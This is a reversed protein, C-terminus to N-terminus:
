SGASRTGCTSSLVDEYRKALHSRDFHTEVYQRGNRGLQRCLGEDDCLREVARALEAANEPAICLGAEGADILSQAEGEVGLIIPVEMAMSEFIKSPIVTKFLDSRRLLVLSADTLSWLAPMRSKPLQDLMIVNALGMEDRLARLRAREAGDGVLLFVIDSRDVLAAAELVTELHHAMGHTGVYAAIFRGEVGLERALGADAAGGPYFSLDVGNKIVTIKAEDVGRDIMYRRFADTVPVIHDAKRYAFAELWELLRIIRKNTIAGVALISDPWLDRIELVWPCRKLRSTFYGALGNFFQPSTSIVIDAKPLWPLALVVAVLYSMYNLTRKLFGENATVYTWLRVVQIGEMEERQYLRNRYGDYVM